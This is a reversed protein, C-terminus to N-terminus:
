YNKRFKFYLFVILFGLIDAILDFYSFMRGPIPIQHLEDFLPVFIALILLRKLVFFKKKYMKVFLFAFLTYVFLHAVKDLNLEDNTPIDLKPISTLTFLIITWLIFLILYKKRM